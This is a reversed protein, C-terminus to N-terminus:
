IEEDSKDSYYVLNLSNGTQNAHYNQAISEVAESLEMKNELTERLIKLMTMDNQLSGINENWGVVESAGKKLLSDALISSSATDCGGLIITSGPFKGVMLEDVAKAGIVFYEDTTVRAGWNNAQSSNRMSFVVQGTEELDSVDVTAHIDTRPNLYAGDIIGFLQENVYKDTTYKESTYLKPSDEGTRGTLAHSRIVIYDYGMSPLKKYFDVTIEETTYLDVEYGAKVFYDNARDQFDHSPIETDLQDIIAAKLIGDDYDSVSYNAESEQLFFVSAFILGTILPIVFFSLKNGIKL